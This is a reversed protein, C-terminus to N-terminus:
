YKYLLYDCVEHKEIYKTNNLLRNLSNNQEDIIVWNVGYKERISDFEGVDLETKEQRYINYIKGMEELQEGSYLGPMYMDRSWFLNISSTLQRMTVSHLPEPPAMVTIQRNSEKEENLIFKTQEVISQPIKSLNEAKEFGNKQTWVFEGLLILFAIQVACIIIKYFKNDKLNILLVFSYIISFEMPLLWLVRWYVSAGTLYKAIMNTLLPNYITICYIIPVGIFYTKARKSGKIAIIILSIIYLLYYKGTGIYDKLVDLYIVSEGASTTSKSIVLFILAYVGIPIGTILFCVVNKWQRKILEIVAFGIYAFTVLFIATNSFFVASFNLLTLKITNQKRNFKCFGILNELILTLIINLFIEKGQWIRSLLIIGRLRTTFGSFLFLIALLIIAIKANKNNLLKRFLIYYSMYAFAILLPMIITHCLITPPINFTKSVISMGLEYGSIMYMSLNNTNEIGLSPEKSYISSSDINEQMLSVYFSDDANENFLLSTIIVQLLVIIITIATIIANAKSIKKIKCINKKIINKEKKFPCIFFSAIIIIACLILTLYLVVSFSVHMLILPIYILQLLAVTGIFGYLIINVLNNNKIWKNVILGTRYFVFTLAIYLIISKVFIM